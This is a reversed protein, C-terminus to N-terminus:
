LASLLILLWAMVLLASYSFHWCGLTWSCLIAHTWFVALQGILLLVVELCCGMLIPEHFIEM